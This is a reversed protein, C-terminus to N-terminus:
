KSWAPCDLWGHCYGDLRRLAGTGGRLFGNQGKWQENGELIAQRFPLHVLVARLVLSQSRPLKVLSLCYKIFSLSRRKMNM